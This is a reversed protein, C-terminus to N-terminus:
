KHAESCKAPSRAWAGDNCATPWAAIIIVLVALALFTLAVAGAGLALAKM